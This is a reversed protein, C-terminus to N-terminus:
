MNLQVREGQDLIPSKIFEDKTRGIVVPTEWIDALSEVERIQDANAIRELRLLDGATLRSYSTRRRPVPMVRAQAPHRLILRYEYIWATRTVFDRSLRERSTKNM